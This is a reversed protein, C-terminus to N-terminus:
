VNEIKTVIKLPNFTCSVEGLIHLNEEMKWRLIEDSYFYCGIMSPFVTLQNQTKNIEIFM